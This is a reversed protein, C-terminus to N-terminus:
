CDFKIERLICSCWEYVFSVEIPALKYKRFKSKKYAIVMSGWRYPVAWMEGDPAEEGHYNRRLYTQSERLGLLASETLQCSAALDLWLSLLYLFICVHHFM